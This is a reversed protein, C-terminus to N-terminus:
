FTNPAQPPAFKRRGGGRVDRSPKPYHPIYRPHPRPPYRRFYIEKPPETFRRPVKMPLNFRKQEILVKEAAVEGTSLILIALTALIIAAIKM